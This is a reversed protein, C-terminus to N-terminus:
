GPITVYRKLKESYYVPTLKSPHWWNNRAASEYTFVQCANPQSMVTEVRGEPTMVKSGNELM